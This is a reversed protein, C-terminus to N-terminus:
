ELSKFYDKVAKAWDPGVGSIEALEEAGAQKIEALTPLQKSIQGAVYRPLRPVQSLLRRGRSRLHVGLLERDYLDEQKLPPCLSREAIGRGFGMLETLMDTPLSAVYEQIGEVEREADLDLFDALVSEYLRDFDLTIEAVQLALLRGDSGLEALYDEIEERIRRVLETRQLVFLVDRFTVVEALELTDLSALVSDLRGRYRELTSLAQNARSLLLPLPQLTRKEGGHYVSVVSLEESVAVVTANVSEAVREATRHRTGTESTPLRPDPVLHVNARVIRSGNQSLIIAGDMKALEFLKQPSFAAEILFGGTCLELVEKSDGLVVLAGMKALLIRDLGARLATGPAVRELARQFRSEGKEM